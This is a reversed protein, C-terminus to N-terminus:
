EKDLMDRNAYMWERAYKPDDFVKHTVGNSDLVHYRVEVSDDVRKRSVKKIRPRNTVAERLASEKVRSKKLEKNLIDLAQAAADDSKMVSDPGLTTEPQGLEYDDRSGYKSTRKHDRSGTYGQSDMETVSEKPVCNPVKKGNKEKMGIQKYNDWCPDSDEAAFEKIPAVDGNALVKLNYKKLWQEYDWQSRFEKRKNAIKDKNQAFWLRQKTIEFPDRADEQGAFYDRMTALSAEDLEESKFENLRM